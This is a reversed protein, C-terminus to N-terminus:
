VNASRPPAPDDLAISGLDNSGFRLTMQAVKLSQAASSSQIHTINDLLM